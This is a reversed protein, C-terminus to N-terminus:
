AYMPTPTDLPDSGPAQVPVPAGNPNRAKRAAELSLITATHDVEKGAAKAKVMDRKLQGILMNIAKDTDMGVYETGEAGKLLWFPTAMAADLVARQAKLDAHDKLFPKRKDADLKWGKGKDKDTEYFVTGFREFWNGLANNRMAQANDKLTDLFNTLVDINGHKAVHVLVSVALVHVEHQASKLVTAVATTRKQIETLSGIVKIAPKAPTMAKANKGHSNM